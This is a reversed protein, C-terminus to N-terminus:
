WDQEDVIPVQITVVRDNMNTQYELTLYYGIGSDSHQLLKFHDIGFEDLIETLKVVNAKTLTIM